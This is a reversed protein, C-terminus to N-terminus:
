EEREAVCEVVQASVNRNNKKISVLYTLTTVKVREKGSMNTFLM